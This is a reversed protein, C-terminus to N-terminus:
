KASEKPFFGPAYEWSETGAVQFKHWKYYLMQYEQPLPYRNDLVYTEGDLDILLVCHYGGGESPDIWCTALRMSLVPWGLDFLKQAKATAYSDCDGGQGPIIPTWDDPGIDSVYREKNLDSNVRVLTDMSNM